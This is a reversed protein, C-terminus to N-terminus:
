INIYPNIKTSIFKRYLCWGFGRPKNIFAINGFMVRGPNYVSMVNKAALTKPSDTSSHKRLVVPNFIVTEGKKILFNSTFVDKSSFFYNTVDAHKRICGKDSQRDYFVVVGKEITSSDTKSILFIIHSIRLIYHIHSKNYPM